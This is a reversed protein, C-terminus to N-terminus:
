DYLGWIVVPVGQYVREDVIKKISPSVPAAKALADFSALSLRITPPPRRHASQYYALYEDMGQIVKNASM